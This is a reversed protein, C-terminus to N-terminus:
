QTSTIHEPSVEPNEIKDLDPDPLRELELADEVVECFISLRGLIRIYLSVMRDLIMEATQLIQPIDEHDAPLTEIAYEALNIDGRAHEFPYAERRLSKDFAQINQFLDQQNRELELHANPVYSLQQAGQLYTVLLIFDDRLKRLDSAFRRLYRWVNLLRQSEELFRASEDLKEQLQPHSLLRVALLLREMGMEAFEELVLLTDRQENLTLKKNERAKDLHEYLQMDSSSALQCEVLRVAIEQENLTPETQRFALLAELAAPAKELLSEGLDALEETAAELDEPPPELERVRQPYLPVYIGQFSRNFAEREKEIVLQRALLIPTSVLSDEHFKDEFLLKYQQLTQEKCLQEFDRFLTRAPHTLHFIGAAKESEAHKVRDPLSPHSDFMGTKTYRIESELDKAIKDDIKDLRAILLAAFDDGLRGERWAVHLDGYALFSAIELHSVKLLTPGLVDSGVVRIQHRDADYEMQRTMFGSVLGGLAMLCWLIGRTIWICLRAVYLGWVLLFSTSESWELLKEELPGRESVVRHLWQNIKRIIYGFRMGTGQSFHGLEHALIGTFQRLDLGAILPLGLRLVMKRRVFSFIGSQFRASANVQLDVEIRQPMPARLIRCLEEVLTFLLPHEQENLTEAADQDEQKSFFPQFMFGLFFGGAALLSIYSLFGITSRMWMEYTAAFSWLLWGAGIVLAVYIAPLLLMLVSTLFLGVRYFWTERVPEFTGQFANRLMEPTTLPPAFSPSIQPRSTPYEQM